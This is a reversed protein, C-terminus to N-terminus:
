EREATEEGTIEALFYAPNLEEGTAQTVLDNWPVTRGPRFVNEQLYKGVEPRNVSSSAGNLVSERLHRSLQSAMLEGLIYNQYYVPTTAIHIKAAWHPRADRTTDPPPLHQLDAVLKWWLADLDQEPDRYLEREFYVVVLGWRVFILQNQCFLEKAGRVVSSTSEESKGVIGTLFEVSHSLRGFLMAIAETTFIHTPGRLTHPLTMDTYKDYVAHGFEHLMTGMWHENEKVNCLVRVDGNRDIDTCFAHQCKGEREHLDSRALVDRVDLGIGDFFKVTLRELDEGRYFRDLDFTTTVPAAQFFPDGYHWPRLEETKLRFKKALSHDLKTMMARYPKETIKALHGLLPFLTDPELENLKLSMVHFNEYGNDRAVRNRLRVLDLVKAAVEVGIQKSADWAERVLNSDDSTRLIEKLRNDSVREGRLQARFNNFRSEIEVGRRVLERVTEGSMRNMEFENRFLVLQRSLHNSDPADPPDDELAKQLTKLEGYRREDTFLLRYEEEREAAADEDEKRGTTNATWWAESLAKERPMVDAALKKVWADIEAVNM